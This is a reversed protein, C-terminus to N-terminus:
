QKKQLVSLKLIKKSLQYITNRDNNTANFENSQQLLYTKILNIAKLADNDAIKSVPEIIEE